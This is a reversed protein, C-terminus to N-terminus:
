SPPTGLNLCLDNDVRQHLIHTMAGQSAVRVLLSLQLKKEENTTRITMATNNCPLQLHINPSPPISLQLYITAQPTPREELDIGLLGEPVFGNYVKRNNVINLCCIEFRLVM